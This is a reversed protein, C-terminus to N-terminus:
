KSTKLMGSNRFTYQLACVSFNPSNGGSATKSCASGAEEALAGRVIVSSSPVPETCDKPPSFCPLLSYAQAVVRVRTPFRLALELQLALALALRREVLHEPVLRRRPSSAAVSALVAVVEVSIRMPDFHVQM